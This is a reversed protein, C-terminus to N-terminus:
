GAAARIAVPGPSCAISADYSSHRAARRPTLGVAYVGRHLRTTREYKQECPICLYSRM